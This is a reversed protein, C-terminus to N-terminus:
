RAPSLADYSAECAAGAIRARDAAAALQGAADGLRGLVDALVDGPASAAPGPAAAAPDGPHHGCGAAVVAARQRLRGAADAATVADDRAQDAQRISEDSIEKMAASRRQEESRAAESASAAAAAELALDRQHAAQEGALAARADDIQHRQYAYEATVAGLAILVALVKLAAAGPLVNDLLSM